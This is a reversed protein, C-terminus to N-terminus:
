WAPGQHPLPGREPHRPGADPPQRQRRRCHPIAGRRQRRFPAGLAQAPGPQRIQGPRERGAAQMGKKFFLGGKAEISGMLANLIILSRRLYIENPHHAGRYGYHFVVPPKAAAVERAFTSSRGPPSAPKRQRGSRPTPSWLPRWSKSARAGLPARVGQRPAAGKFHHPDPCLEPGPRHRAPDDLLPQGQHRHHHGPPRYLHTQGGKGHGGSM